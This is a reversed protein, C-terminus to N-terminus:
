IWYINLSIQRICNLDQPYDYTIRKIIQLQNQYVNISKVYSKPENERVKEFLQNYWEEVREKYDESDLDSKGYQNLANAKHENLCAVVQNVYVTVNM